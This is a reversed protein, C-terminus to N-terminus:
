LGLRPIEIAPCRNMVVKLGGEEAKAAAADDRVELQSWLVAPREPMALADNVVSDLYASARFVDVMDVPEGIDGLSSRVPEGLIMKGELGPNVPIVRYGKGQLFKMVRHSPREPKPSAGVLAITAVSELIGRIYDDPYHDHNM